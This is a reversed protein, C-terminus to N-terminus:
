RLWVSRLRFCKCERATSWEDPQRTEAHKPKLALRRPLLKVEGAASMGDHGTTLSLHNPTQSARPKPARSVVVPRKRSPALITSSLLRGHGSLRPDEFRMVSASCLVSNAKHQRLDAPSRSKASEAHCPERLEATERRTLHESSRECPGLEGEMFTVRGEHRGGAPFLQSAGWPM